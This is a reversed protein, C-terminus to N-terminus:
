SSSSIKIKCYFSITFQQPAGQAEAFFISLIVFLFLCRYPTATTSFMFANIKANHQAPPVAPVYKAQLASFFLCKFTNLHCILKDSKTKRANLTSNNAAIIGKRNQIFAMLSCIPKTPSNNEGAPYTHIVTKSHTVVM